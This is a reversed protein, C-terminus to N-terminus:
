GGGSTSQVICHMASMDVSKECPQTTIMVNPEMSGGPCKVDCSNTGCYLTTAAGCDMTCQLLCPGNGCHIKAGMCGGSSCNVTCPSGDNPCNVTTNACAGQFTCDVQCAAGAPCTITSGCGPGNPCMVICPPPLPPPCNPCQGAGTGAMCMVPQAPMCAPMGTASSVGTTAAKTTSSGTAGKGGTGTTGTGEMINNLGSVLECGVTLVCALLAVALLPRLRKM